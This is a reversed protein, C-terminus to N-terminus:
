ETIHKPLLVREFAGNRYLLGDGMVPLDKSAVNPFVSTSGPNGLLIGDTTTKFFKTVDDFGKGKTSHTTAIIGCGTEAALKLCEAMEKGIAKFNEAFEDTDDIIIYVPALSTYFEKPSIRSNEQQAKNFGGKRATIIEHFEEVFDEAEEQKEIYDLNRDGKHFFLERSASDFLFIKEKGSIQELIIKLLNTKGKGADGLIIFPATNKDFGRLEVTEKHLGIVIQKEAGGTFQPLMTSVFQEPLVPIRPARKTPYMRCVQDILEKIGANYEVENKFATMTYIQMLNVASHKVLVRGEIEPPQYASKGVLSTAESKEVLYGALKNKYNNLAAYRIGSQRTATIVMYIGLGMGDRSLKSFFDELDQSIEKVVDYNDVLVVIAKLPHGSTQNYVDFNQVMSQAFLKKRDKMEQNLIRILKTMREKDDMTIYDATHPLRNLPILASNGFDCIYFNLFDVSNKLVLNLMFTTLFTSKGYGPATFFALNGDKLLNLCYETQAQEQPIDVLGIAAELNLPIAEEEKSKVPEGILAHPSMLRGPLPPLWPRKVAVANQSGFIDSIHDITLDLQTVKLQDSEQTSSLDSNILEGQGLENVLYVLNSKEEAEEKHGAAGSWASQFLEYIENNGVQPYARGPQTIFAADPTKIIERSDSENQVKLALKFRSNTWIQDDVVGSPKQTALILHIGLSRGIRAASVLETMFDPQEKKLEAFEDSILFLHPLPEEVEKLKFLKNYDNIHNVNNQSFIKQRRALESKISAMARMSESGDLNTITGLLHPLNRFLGAMGGGKYDILLFGVEHPHFNVALSLIYSQIIESKGSGTTGAVLGHPGHAKEHLNLYMYDEVGRLGLPVALSKHSENKRWREEIKLQKPNEVHYMDFFTVSEPIQSVIGKEHVLVSLNRAMQEFRIDEARQLQVRRNVMEGQDLVLVGQESNELQLITKINEPLNARMHTTYIITFGLGDGEKDLFEMIAHDAILRPDDIIFLYHPLFRSEKRSEEKKLNRDKIIRFMSGLVHDRMRESNICGYANIAHIRLHPYWNMWKFTDNYKENFINIIELDHYSHFFALQAVMLKLQEHIIEKEGVLGLHAQKLDISVPKGALMRSQRYIEEAEQQLPDKDTEMENYKMSVSFSVPEDATGIAISLFDSDGSSREYIRSSYENVMKEIKKIPPSNYTVADWEAERAHYIKKRISLLYNDYMVLRKEETTKNEKKDKIFKVTSFVLSMVTSLVSVIVFIGRKMMISVAVTIGMMVLPPLIIQLLSSKAIAKKGPPTNIEIRETPVKKILRPSRKYKPFGEFPISDPALELLEARYAEPPMSILLKENFITITGAEFSFSDGEAFRIGQLLAEETVERDNHYVKEGTLVWRELYIIDEEIWVQFPFHPITIDANEESITVAQKRQYARESVQPIKCEM